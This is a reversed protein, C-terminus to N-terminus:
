KELRYYPIELSSERGRLQSRSALTFVSLPCCLINIAYANTQNTETKKYTLAKVTNLLRGFATGHYLQKLTSSKAASSKKQPWIFPNTRVTALMMTQSSAQGRASVYM